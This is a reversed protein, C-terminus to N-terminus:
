GGNRVRHFEPLWVQPDDGLEAVLREALLSTATNGSLVALEDDFGQLSLEAVVSNQGQKILFQRSKEGLNKIIEFERVTLKFGNVYDEYDAGPNPLFIKTATQEILSHSIKSRLSDRPSQTFMVLFGNQKRITKLKNQVLDEFYEDLLLKWFEDMFIILRRGDILKEIRHFLYMITPTRTEDNELFETVDFGFIPSGELSFSDEANDFLWGLAGGRCWRALRAYLGNADTPDFFELLAGLRRKSKAAGMVGNIAQNIEREQAPMLPMGEHEVLKKVLAELFVLNDPTPDLQFPSFGSPVGNKIPYYKGGMARVGISAGLDKDFLIYTAPFEPPQNFKMAMALMTMELVTKGGGSQGIVMTNALDKHNKDLKAEKGEARHFNFYYPSGSTTKFMMVADGWQNHRIRGIPFNHFSSFGAFNLSTIDGVRVRYEFNGPLMAYFSGAIGMEERTWKIGINSLSAGALNVHETLQKRNEAYILISINHAGMVFRNSILDDLADHIANIQSKALDGSNVMRGYQRQMRGVAVPKSLFTFSQSIVMEFPMGLLDNLLGPQTMSPYEQVALISAYREQTPTKLSMLGSKGFFPRSTTLVDKIDARPLPFKRWEGNVLYALFEAAESFMVGNHEYCGLMEPEYRFLGSMVAGSIENIVDINDLQEEEIEKQSKTNFIAFWSTAKVTQPRYIISLYIENVLMRGSVMKSRYKENFDHCFGPHFDGDPYENFERRVVHSWLAVKPSAINRMIGNLQSHWNNIDEIDASEHAAGQLKIVQLFDGNVLKITNENVHSSYPIFAAAELESKLAGAFQFAGTM